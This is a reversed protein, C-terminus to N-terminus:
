GGGKLRRGRMAANGRRVWGERSCIGKLWSRLKIWGMLGCLMCLVAGVFGVWRRVCANCVNCRMLMDGLFCFCFGEVGKCRGDERIRGFVRQWTM